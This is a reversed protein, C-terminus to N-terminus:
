NIMIQLSIVVFIRNVKLDFDKIIDKYLLQGVFGSRKKSDQSAENSSNM